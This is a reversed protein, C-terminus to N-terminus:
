RWATSTEGITLSRNLARASAAEPSLVSCAEKLTKAELYEFKPLRM